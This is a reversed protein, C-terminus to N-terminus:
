LVPCKTGAHAPRSVCWSLPPLCMLLLNRRSGAVGGLDMFIMCVTSSLVFPIGLQLAGFSLHLSEFAYNIPGPLCLRCSEQITRTRTLLRFVLWLCQLRRGANVWSAVGCQRTRVHRINTPSILKTIVYFNAFGTPYRVGM